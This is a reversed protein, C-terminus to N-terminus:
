VGYGDGGDGYDYDDYDNSEYSDFGDTENASENGGRVEAGDYGVDYNEPVYGERLRGGKKKNFGNATEPEAVDRAPEPKAGEAPLNDDDYDMDLDLDDEYGALDGAPKTIVEEDMIVGSAPRSQKVSKSKPRDSDTRGIEDTGGLAYSPEVGEQTLKINGRKIENIAISVAKDTFVGTTDCEAGDIIQRARKATAIVISYRSTIQNDAEADENLIDMLESYSPRLM